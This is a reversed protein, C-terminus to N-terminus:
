AYQGVMILPGEFPCLGHSRVLSSHISLFKDNRGDGHGSRHNDAIPLGIWAMLEVRCSVSTSGEEEKWTKTDKEREVDSIM